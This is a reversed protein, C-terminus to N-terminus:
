KPVVTNSDRVIVWKGNAGKKFISLADGGLKKPAGGTEPYLLVSIRNWVYAYDGFVKIEQIDMTPQVKMSASGTEFQKSFGERGRLEGGPILFVVDDAMLPLIRSLDHALTAESWEAIVDRIAQEDNTPMPEGKRKM